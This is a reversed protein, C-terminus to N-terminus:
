QAPRILRTEDGSGTKIVWIWHRDPALSCPLSIKLSEQVGSSAATADCKPGEEGCFLAM